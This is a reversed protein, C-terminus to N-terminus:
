VNSASRIASACVSSLVAIGAATLMAPEYAAQWDYILGASWPGALGAFGWATFVRGYIRPGQEGYREAIAVPYVAILSGYAFGVLSLLIVTVGADGTLSLALM